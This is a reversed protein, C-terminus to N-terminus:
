RFSATHFISHIEGFSRLFDNSSLISEGDEKTSLNHIRLSNFPQKSFANM